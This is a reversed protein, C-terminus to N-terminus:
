CGPNIPCVDCADAVGDGDADSSDDGGPCTDFSDCVGDGDSDDFPDFPCVDCADDVGDGDADGGGGGQCADCADPIGDGDADANDDGGPCVDNADPVGDGDADGGAAQGYLSLTGGPLYNYGGGGACVTDDSVVRIKYGDGNPGGGAVNAFQYIRNIAIAGLGMGGPYSFRGVRVGNLEVHFDLTGVACQGNTVDDIQFAIEISNVTALGTVYKDSLKSGQATLAAGGGAGLTTVAVTDNLESGPRPFAVDVAYSSVSFLALSALMPERRTFAAGDYRM